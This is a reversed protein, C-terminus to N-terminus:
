TQNPPTRPAAPTSWSAPTGRSRALRAPRPVAVRRSRILLGLGATALAALLAAAAALLVPSLGDGGGSVIVREELEAQVAPGLTYTGEWLVTRGDYDIEVRAAYEGNDAAAVWQVPYAIATGPVFTDIAFDRDLSGDAVVISGTATTLGTGRNEIGIELYLGDPRAVPEVGTIALLPAAPGPLNVQVAIIRRAEMEIAAGAQGAAADATAATEATPAWVAIGALNVGDPADGPVAVTFAVNTSAGPELRVTDREFSIWSGVRERPEDPLAYSVGGLAGTVADVAALRLDLPASSDNRLSLAQTAGAGAPAELEFWGGESISSGEAPEAVFELGDTQAHAPRAFVALLLLSALFIRSLRAPM